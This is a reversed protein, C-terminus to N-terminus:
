AMSIYMPKGMCANVCKLENVKDVKEMTYISICYGVTQLCSLDWFCLTMIYKLVYLPLSDM